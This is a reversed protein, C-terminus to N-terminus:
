ASCLCLYGRFLLPYLATRALRLRMERRPVPESLLEYATAGDRSAPVLTIPVDPDPVAHYRRVQSFGAHRACGLARHMRWHAVLRAHIRGDTVRSALCLQGDSRLAQKLARCLTALSGDRHRVCDLDVYAWDAQLDSIETPQWEAGPSVPVVREVHMRLAALTHSAPEGVFIASEFSNGPVLWIWNAAAQSVGPRVDIVARSGPTLLLRGLVGAV